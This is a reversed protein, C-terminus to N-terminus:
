YQCKTNIYINYGHIRNLTKIAESLDKETLRECQIIVFPDLEKGHQTATVHITM